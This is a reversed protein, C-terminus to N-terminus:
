RPFFLLYALAMGIVVGVLGIALVYRVNHGKVGQRAETPLMEPARGDDEHIRPSPYEPSRTQSM